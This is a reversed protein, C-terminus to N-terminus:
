LTSEYADQVYRDGVYEAIGTPIGKRMTEYVHILDLVDKVCYKKYEPHLPREHFIGSFNKSASMLKHFDDKSENIGHPAEYKKLIENLGPTRVNSLTGLMANTIKEETRYFELQVKFIEMGSTDFVNRTCTNIIEHLSLCDHRSDHFVKVVKEDLMKERILLKIQEYLEFNFDLQTIKYIDFLFVNRGNNFQIMEIFGGKRLRGEIDVALIDSQLFALACRELSENSDVVEVEELPKESPQFVLCSLDPREKMKCFCPQQKPIQESHPNFIFSIMPLYYIHYGKNAIAAKVPSVTNNNSLRYEAMLDNM